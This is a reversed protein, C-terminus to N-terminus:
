ADTDGNTPRASEIEAAWGDLHEMVGYASLDLHHAAIQEAAWRLVAPAVLRAANLAAAPRPLCEACWEDPNDAAQRIDWPDIEVGLAEAGAAIAPHETAM